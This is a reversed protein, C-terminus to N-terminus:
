SINRMKLRSKEIQDRFYEISIKRGLVVLIDGQKCVFNEDPNFFFHLHDVQYRNRNKRHEVHSSIVGVLLLKRYEFDIDVIKTGILLSNEYVILTDMLVDNTGQLIGLIAEFAVPQGLYEAALLGSIQFPQIVHNAGVQHLKKINEDSNVRSIIKIDPNLYRSSLTIYVNAVDDGTTCVVTTAGRNIGANILVENKSADDHITVINQYQALEIHEINKDIVIFKQDGKKLQNAVEQGVRGFGCIIIFQKYNELEAYIKNERLTHMKDNFAAVIVSTFFSLGGLGSVILAMTVLRGGVTQPTIDGYGVTSITVVSWYFADYLHQIQGGSTQNEFLYIGISATFVLFGMFVCLTILEFRKSDLIDTFLKISNSYRFLKFLRFILLARLFRLPRYSPLIALLDIIAVISFVYALKKFLLIKLVEISNFPMNLFEAKEHHDIIIKHNDSALWGRLLYEIIFITVVINEFIEGIHGLDGEIDYILLFVSLMVLYIMFLDFYYKKRSQTNHLLDYFFTKCHNYRKSTKFFYACYILFRKM